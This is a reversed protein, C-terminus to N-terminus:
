HKVRRAYFTLQWMYNTQSFFAASSSFSTPLELSFLTSTSLYFPERKALFVSWTQKQMSGWTMEISESSFVYFHIGRFYFELFATGMMNLKTKPSFYCYIYSSYTPKGFRSCNIKTSEFFIFSPACSHKIVSFDWDLAFPVLVASWSRFVVEVM